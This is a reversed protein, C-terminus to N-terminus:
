SHCACNTQALLEVPVVFTLGHDVAAVKVVNAQGGGAQLAGVPTVTVALVNFVATIVQTTDM